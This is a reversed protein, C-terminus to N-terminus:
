PLIMSMCVGVPTHTHTHTHTYTNIVTYLPFVKFEM